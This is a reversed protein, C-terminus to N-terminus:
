KVLKIQKTNVIKTPLTEGFCDICLQNLDKTTMHDVQYNGFQEVMIKMLEKLEPPCISDMSYGSGAFENLTGVHYSRMYITNPDSANLKDIMEELYEEYDVGDLDHYYAALSGFEAVMMKLDSLEDLPVECFNSAWSRNITTTYTRAKYSTNSFWIGDVTEGYHKNIIYTNYKLKPNTTLFVFKDSDILEELFERTKKSALFDPKFQKLITDNFVRTDSKTKTPEVCTLVGNHAFVTSDNVKFPHCNDINTKGSTAIRCHILIDSTKAFKTQVDLAKSVFDDQNMTKFTKIDGDDIWSIGFGHGNNNSMNILTSKNIVSTDAKISAIICM